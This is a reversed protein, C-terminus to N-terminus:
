GMGVHQAQQEKKGETKISPAVVVDAKQFERLNAYGTTAMSTRLAGFDVVLVPRPDTM